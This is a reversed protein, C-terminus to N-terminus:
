ENGTYGIPKPVDVDKGYREKITEKIQDLTIKKAKILRHRYDEHVNAIDPNVTWVPRHPHDQLMAVYRMGTLEDMALRILADNQYDATMHLARRIEHLSVTARVGACQIVYDMIRRGSDETEDGVHLYTYRMNPLIFSRMIRVAKEVTAAEVTASHQNTIIHTLLVLRACQGDLKGLATLYAPSKNLLREAEIFQLSWRSFGKFVERAAASFQYETPPMAYVRRLLQEYPGAHSLWEPTADQWMKNNDPNICIPLFRQMVGDASLSPLSKRFVEPQCNGYISLALNEVMITGTGIRDMSYPGTEYGRIWCGRDDTTRKDALKEMWKAMEDLYMLFGRQRGQSMVVYKQTTADQIILRTAQPEPPLQTIEFPVENEPRPEPSQARKLFEDMDAKHRAEAARWALMEAKYRDTDELEIKSLPAFMPKSGPTKKDSPNGITMLWITPPVRWTDNIKLTTRKDVAASVASLGAALSVVVDCGVETSVEVARATLEDPWHQLDVTPPVYVPSMKALQQEPPTTDVPTFLDKIDPEPRTWGSRYAISFLTGVTVGDPSPHFSRWQKVMEASGPYKTGRASWLEWITFADSHGTSHLAMGVRIWDDRTCDPDIAEVAQRIEAINAPLASEGASISRSKEAALIEHWWRAIGEPIGPLKSYHGAGTWRYHQGTTPHVALSPLVDQVTSGNATACRFEAVVKGDRTIRKSPLPVPQRFILKAHNPNGSTIGVADGASFLNDLDIGREAALQKFVTLDDIDLACTGSYGHALGVGVNDQIQEPTTWCNEQRNWGQTSPGKGEAIPVLAFGAELYREYTHRVLPTAEVPQASM